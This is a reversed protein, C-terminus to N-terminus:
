LRSQVTAPMDSVGGTAAKRRRDFTLDVGLIVVFLAAAPALMWPAAGLVAVNAAEHLMTGWSPADDPFGFGIYSLTAEALVFMPVLLVAQVAAHGNTAPFLHRLLVRWRSAGLAHAALVYERQREAVVISRVGRAVVPWGVAIFILMMLLFVDRAPMVIPMVARLVLVVYTVPLLLVADGFRSLTEDFWGGAFGALGGM